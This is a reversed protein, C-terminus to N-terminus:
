EDAKVLIVEASTIAPISKTMMPSHYAVIKTGPKLDSEIGLATIVQTDETINLIIDNDTSQDSGVNIYLQDKSTRDSAAITGEIKPASIESVVIKDAHTRAPYIALMVQSYYAEVRLDAKLAEATLPAGNADVIETEKDVTLIVYNVGGTERAQGIVTISNDATATIIGNTGAPEEQVPAEADAQVQIYNTTSQPPLSLAVAPGYFSRISMGTKLDSAQLTSGDPAIIKAKPDLHLLITEEGDRYLNTGEVLIAKDNVETITGDIASFDQEQVIITLASGQAPLSKTLKPSYFAKVAKNQDVISQLQVKKGKADVIKTNKSISLKIESQNATGLGRGTVTIWKGTEDNVYDTIYGMTGPVMKKEQNVINGQGAHISAPPVAQANAAAPLAAMALIATTALVKYINNM